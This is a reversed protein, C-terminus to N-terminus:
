PTGLGRVAGGGRPGQHCLCWGPILGSGCPWVLAPELAGAPGVQGLAQVLALGSRVARQADDEHAQPYGFYVLVGEDRHQAM